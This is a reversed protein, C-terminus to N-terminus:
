GRRVSRLQWEATQKASLNIQLKIERDRSNGAAKTVVLVQDGPLHMLVPSYPWAEMFEIQKAQHQSPPIEALRVFERGHPEIHVKIQGNPSM